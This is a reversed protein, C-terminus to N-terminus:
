MGRKKERHKRVREAGTMPLPKILEHDEEPNAKKDIIEEIEETKAPLDPDLEDFSQFKAEDYRDKRTKNGVKKVVEQRLEEIPRTGSGQCAQFISIILDVTADYAHECHYVTKWFEGSCAKVLVEFQQDTRMKM